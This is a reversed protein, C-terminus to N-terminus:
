HYWDLNEQEAIMKRTLSAYATEASNLSVRTPPWASGGDSRILREPAITNSLRHALDNIRRALEIPRVSAIPLEVLNSANFAFREDWMSAQGDKPFCVQKMWYCAVSSNLIGLLGMFEESSDGQRKKIAPATRNFVYRGELYAFHLHTSIDAYAISSTNRFRERQFRSWEYWTLGIEEHTGGPERRVKLIAKNRWLHRQLAITTPMAARLDGGYPFLVQERSNATWDRVNPGEILPVLDDVTAGQRHWFAPTGFYVEDTGTHTVRGVVEIVGALTVIARTEPAQQLDSLQRQLEEARSTFQLFGIPDSERTRRSLLAQVAALDTTLADLELKRVM